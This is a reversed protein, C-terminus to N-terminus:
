FICINVHLEVYTNCGLIRSMFLSYHTCLVCVTIIGTAATGLKSDIEHYVDHRYRRKIEWEPYVTLHQAQIEQM